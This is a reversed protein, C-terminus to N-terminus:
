STPCLEFSQKQTNLDLNTFEKLFLKTVASIFNFMQFPNAHGFWFPNAMVPNSGADGMFLLWVQNEGGHRRSDEM